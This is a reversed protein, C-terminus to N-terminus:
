SEVDVLKAKLERKQQVLGAIKAHEDEPMTDIDLESVTCPSAFLDDLLPQFQFHEHLRGVYEAMVWHVKQHKLLIPTEPLADATWNARIWYLKGPHLQITRSSSVRIEDM